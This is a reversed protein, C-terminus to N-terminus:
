LPSVAIDVASIVVNLINILQVNDVYSAFIIIISM